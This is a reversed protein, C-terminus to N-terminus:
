LYNDKVLVEIIDTANSIISIASDYSLPEGRKEANLIEETRDRIIALKNNIDCRKIDRAILDSKIYGLILDLSVSLLIMSCIIGICMNKVSTDNYYNYYVNLVNIVISFISLALFLFLVIYRLIKMNYGM